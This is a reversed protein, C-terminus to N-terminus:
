TSQPTEIERGGQIDSGEPNSLYNLMGLFALLLIGWAPINEGVPRSEEMLRDLGPLKVYEYVRPEYRLRQMRKQQQTLPQYDPNPQYTYGEKM